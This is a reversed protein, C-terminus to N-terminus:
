WPTSLVASQGDLTHSLFLLVAVALWVSGPISIGGVGGVVGSVEPPATGARPPCPLIPTFALPCEYRFDYDYISGLGWHGVCCLFGVLTLLNPAM